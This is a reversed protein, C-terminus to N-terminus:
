VFVFKLFFDFSVVKSRHNKHKWFKKHHVTRSFSFLVSWAAVFYWKWSLSCRRIYWYHRPWIQLQITWQCRSPKNSAMGLKLSSSLASFNENREEDLWQPTPRMENELFQKSHFWSRDQFSFAKFICFFAFAIQLVHKWRFHRRTRNHSLFWGLFSSEGQTAHTEARDHLLKASKNGVLWFLKKLIRYIHPEHLRWSDTWKRLENRNRRTRLVHLSLDRM